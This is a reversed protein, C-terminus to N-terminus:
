SNGRGKIGKTTLIDEKSEGAYDINFTNERVIIPIAKFGKPRKYKFLYQYNPLTHGRIDCAPCKLNKLRKSSSM